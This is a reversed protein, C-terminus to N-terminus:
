KVNVIGRDTYAVMSMRIGQIDLNGHFLSANFFLLDGPKYNVKMLYRILVLEGGEFEGMPMIVSMSGILNRMDPHLAAQLSKVAYVTTYPTDFLHPKGEVQAMQWAYLEPLHKKYLGAIFKILVKNHNLLEPQAKSLPTQSCVERNVTYGMLAQRSKMTKLVAKPIRLRKNQLTPKKATASFRNSLEQTAAPWWYRMAKKYLVPTIVQKLYVLVVSGDPALVKTDEDGVPHKVHQPGPLQGRMERQLWNFDDNLSLQIIKV